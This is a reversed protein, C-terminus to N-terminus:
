YDKLSQIDFIEGLTMMLARVPESLDDRPDFAAVVKYLKTTLAVSIGHEFLEYIGNHDLDKCAYAFETVTKLNTSM